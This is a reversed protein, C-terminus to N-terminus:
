PLFKGANECYQTDAIDRKAQLWVRSGNEIADKEVVGDFSAKIGGDDVWQVDRGVRFNIAFLALKGFVQNVITGIGQWM